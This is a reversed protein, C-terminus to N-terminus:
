QSSVENNILDILRESMVILKKMQGNMKDFELISLAFGNKLEMSNVVENMMAEPLEINKGLKGGSATYTYNEVLINIDVYKYQPEYFTKETDFRYHDEESKMKKYDLELDLLTNMISDNSIMGLNGSNILEQFTNNHQYFKEWNYLPISLENFETFSLTREGNYFELIHQASNMLGTRAEIFTNLEVINGVLDANINELYHLEKVRSKRADNNNNIQLAILIGIVVLLIEGIAYLLYKSFKNDKIM